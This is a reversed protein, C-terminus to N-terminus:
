RSMSKTSIKSIQYNNPPVKVHEKLKGVSITAHHARILFDVPYINMSIKHM